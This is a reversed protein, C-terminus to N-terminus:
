QELKSVDLIDSEALKGPIQALDVYTKWLLPANQRLSTAIEKYMTRCNEEKLIGPSLIHSLVTEPDAQGKTTVINALTSLLEIPTKSNPIVAVLMSLGSTIRDGTCAEDRGFQEILVRSLAYGWPTSLPSMEYQHSPPVAEPEYLGVPEDRLRPVPTTLQRYLDPNSRRSQELIAWTHWADCSFYRQFTREPKEPTDYSAMVGNPKPCAHWAAQIYTRPLYAGQFLEPHGVGTKSSGFDRLAEARSIMFPIIGLVRGM